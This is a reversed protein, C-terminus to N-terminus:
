HITGAGPLNVAPPATTSTPGQLTGGGSNIGPPRIGSPLPRPMPTSTPANADSSGIFNGYADYYDCTHEGPGNLPKYCCSYGSLPDGSWDGGMVACQTQTTPVDAQAVPATVIVGVAFAGAGIIHGRRSRSTM